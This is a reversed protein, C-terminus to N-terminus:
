SHYRENQLLYLEYANEMLCAITMPGVGGPVPTIFSAKNKVNEFDVDGELLGLHNKVIGVDIVVANEKVMDETILKPQGTASVLIDAEKTISKLDKTKTHAVTVTANENTLLTAIPKGVINSRGIVVAKKGEIQINNAKLLKIIGKPTCPIAHARLNCNLRGVNVPHFGDVDKVPDIAEIIEDEKLHPFLPLQVLIGNIEPNCNLERILRILEKQSVTKDFKYSYSEIGLIDAKKEKSAVYVRSAPNDNALIVALGPKKALKDIKEKLSNLLEDAVKKGDIIEM